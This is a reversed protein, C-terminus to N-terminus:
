SNYESYMEDKSIHELASKVAPIINKPLSDASFWDLESHIQPENNVVKGEWRTAEFYVDVWDIEDRRHVIHVFKLKTPNIGIEENAERIAAELFSETKEVKGSPLGWFGSMWDTNSRLVLAIKKGKKVIIYSAIYPTATDYKVM